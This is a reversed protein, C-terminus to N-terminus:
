GCSWLLAQIRARCYASPPVMTRLPGPLDGCVVLDGSCVGVEAFCYEENRHEKGRNANTGEKRALTETTGGLLHNM